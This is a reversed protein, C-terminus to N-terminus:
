IWYLFVYCAVATLGQFVWYWTGAQADWYNQRNFGARGSRMAIAILVFLGSLTYFASVGITSYFTEGFRTGVPVFFQSWEYILLVLYALGLVVATKFRHQMKDLNDHRIAHLGDVACWMSVLMLVTTIAGLWQNITPAVYYGDLEYRVTFLVVFPILQTGLFLRLGWQLAAMHRQADLIETNQM